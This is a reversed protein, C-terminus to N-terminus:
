VGVTPFARRVANGALCAVLTVVFLFAALALLSLGTNPHLTDPLGFVMRLAHAGPIPAWLAICFAVTRRWGTMSGFFACGALLTVIVIPSIEGRSAFNDVLAIVVGAFAGLVLPLALNNRRSM